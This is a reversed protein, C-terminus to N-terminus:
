KEYHGRFSELGSAIDISEPDSPDLIFLCGPWVPLYECRAEAVDDLNAVVIIVPRGSEGRDDQWSTLIRRTSADPRESAFLGFGAAERHREASDDQV